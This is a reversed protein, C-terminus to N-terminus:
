QCPPGCTGGLGGCASPCTGTSAPSLRCIEGAILCDADTTCGTKQASDGVCGLACGFKSDCLASCVGTTCFSGCKSGLTTCPAPSVLTSTTTSTTTTSNTTTTAPTLTVISNVCTDVAGEIANADGTITCGGKADAKAITLGFKTEAAMLCSTDVASGSSDAKEYCKLKAAIKKAAAKKKTAACKGADSGAAHILGASVGLVALVAVAQGFRRM